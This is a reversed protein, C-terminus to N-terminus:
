RDYVPGYAFSLVKDAKHVAVSALRFKHGKTSTEPLVTFKILCEEAPGVEMRETHLESTPRKNKADFVKPSCKCGSACDVEVKGVESYSKLFTLALMVKAGAKKDEDSLVNSNVKVTLSSGAEKTLFGYKHCGACANSGEDVWEWGRNDQVYGQLGENEACFTPWSEQAAEPNLPQPMPHTHSAAAALSRHHLLIRTAQHRLAWALFGAYVSAGYNGVHVMDVLIRSQNIGYMNDRDFMANYLSDRVSMMPIGYRRCVVGHQDEGTEYFKGPNGKRDLWMFTAFGMLAAQPAKTIIKRVLAEYGATQPSTFCQCEGGYGNISYEILVLDADSPLGQVLCLAAFTAATARRALSVLNFKVAPFAEQLWDVFEEPYSTNSKQYGVTVSGGFAVVNVTSGQTSLKHVLRAWNRGEVEHKLGQRILGDDVPLDPKWLKEILLKSEHSLRSAPNAIFKSAASLRQCLLLCTFCLLATRLAQM